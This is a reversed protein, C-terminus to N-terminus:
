AITISRVLVAILDRAPLSGPEKRLDGSLELDAAGHAAAWVLAAARGAPVTLLERAEAELFPEQFAARAEHAARMLVPEATAWRTFVLKFRAPRRVAWQIYSQATATLADHGPQTDRRRRRMASQLAGLERAAVAELLSEKDSWHKYPANHSVGALRGVERMTVSRPGGSDLLSLAADLLRDTTTVTM